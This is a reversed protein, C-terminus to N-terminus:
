RALRERADLPQEGSATSGLATEDRAQPRRLQSKATRAGHKAAPMRPPKTSQKASQHRQNQYDNQALFKGRRHFSVIQPDAPTGGRPHWVEPATTSNQTTARLNDVSQVNGATKPKTLGTAQGEAATMSSHRPPFYDELSMYHLSALDSGGPQSTQMAYQKASRNAQAFQLRTQASSGAKLFGDKHRNGTM